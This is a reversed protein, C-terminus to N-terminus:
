ARVEEIAFRASAQAPLPLPVIREGEVPSELADLVAWGQGMLWHDYFGEVEAYVADRRTLRPVIWPVRGPWGELARVGQALVGWAERLRALHAQGDGGLLAGLTPAEMSLIDVSLVDPDCALLARADAADLLLSSRVHLAHVGSARAFDAVRALHATAGPGTRLTCVPMCAHRGAHALAREIREVDALTSASSLAARVHWPEPPAEQALAGTARNVQQASCTRADLGAREIARALWQAHAPTDAIARVLGDRVQADIRVCTAAAIEDRMPLAPVYGLLGGISAWAGANARARLLQECTTRAVLMPALGPTAQTFVTRRLGPNEAFRAMIQGTLDPDILCWDPGLVLAGDAGAQEIARMTARLHLVEDYCTLGGLGGRWCARAFLRAPRLVPAPIVGEAPHAGADLAEIRVRADNGLPGLLARMRAPDDTHLAVGALGPARLLREVTLSAASRGGLSLAGIDRAGGLAGASPGARLPAHVVGIVRAGKVQVGPAGELGDDADLAEPDRTLRPGGDLTRASADLLTIFRETAEGIWRVNVLDREIQQLQLGQGSLDERLSIDRDARWRKFSGLANFPQLLSWAPQHTVIEDRMTDLKGIVRSVRAQDAIHERAETLLGTARKSLEGIRWLQRRLESVRERATRLQARAQPAGPERLGDDIVDQVTRAGARALADDLVPALARVVTHAKAVGGETADITTRGEREDAAFDRLFQQLYSHMQEDTYVPRGLHDTARRLLHGMRKVRQWEHNELTNFESLEPAWVHHTSAGAGYYQGDTFGLDQGILAVPDCGLYRALYYSLHAVTTGTPLEGMDRRLADGLVADLISDRPCVIRGPFAAPVAANVKPEAVLTVGQVDHATLGEYFRASIEHHDLATVFHPRIGLALMPKLMTQAAIIVCSERVGPRLLERLNRQVSPGAAVCVATRGALAGRLGAIGSRTVYHDMNQLVNRFNTEMQLLESVANLRTMAAADTVRKMFLARQEGLRQVSPLHDLIQVGLAMARTCAIAVASVRAEDSADAFLHVGPHTIVGTHDIRELVARLLALDPELVLLADGRAQRAALERVHLGLGFGMVVGTAHKKVDMAGAWARAEDAPARRSALARGQYVASLGQPTDIWTVAAPATRSLATALEPQRTALAVLNDALVPTGPIVPGDPVLPSGHACRAPKSEVGSGPQSRVTEM